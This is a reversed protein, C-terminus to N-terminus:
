PASFKKMRAGRLVGVAGVVPSLLLIWSPTRALSMAQILTVDGSRVSPPYVRMARPIAFLLGLAFVIGAFVLCAGNSKSMVACLWGGIIGGILTATVMNAMWLTSVVYSESAFVREIGLGLYALCLLAFATITMVIYGVIVALVSKLM